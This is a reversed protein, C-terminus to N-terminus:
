ALMEEHAMMMPQQHQLEDIMAEKEKLQQDREKIEQEHTIKFAEMESKMRQMQTDLEFKQVNLQYDMEIKQRDIDMKERSLEIKQFELQNKEHEVQADMQAAELAVRAPDLPPEPPQQASQAEQAEQVKIHALQVALQNQQDPTLQAPDEPPPMGLKAYADVMYKFAEHQKKYAAANPLNPDQPNTQMWADIVALYADHDQWVAAAVAEGKTIAMITSVPDLPQPPQVKDAPPLLFQSIDDQSVGANEYYYRYVYYMNHANPNKLAQNLITEGLLFKHASNRTTPDAAPVMKIGSRIGFDVRSINFSGSSTVFSIPEDPTCEEFRDDFLGFEQTLSEFWGQMIVNPVRHLQEFMALTTGVPANPNMEAVKHTVIASPKRISDEIENGMMVLTPSPEKSPISQIVQSIPQGGCHLPIYEGPKPTITNNELRISADYMGGPFNNYEATSIIQRKISTAAQALRGAYNVFGYGEGDLSSLFSYNVFYEIRRKLPDNERWNRYLGLVKGSIKDISAVYPLSIKHPFGAPDGKVVLNTHCENIVYNGDELVSYVSQSGAIEEMQEQVVGPQDDRDQKIVRIDRYMGIAVRAQFDRESMKLIHTKRTAALHSSFDRNVVFQEVPIMVAVPRNEIPCTYVKKYVSGAVECWNLTRKGEKRFDKADNDFYNNYFHKKRLRRDQLEPSHEGVAIADVMDTKFLVCGLATMDVMTEFMTNSFVSSTGGPLDQGDGGEAPTPKNGLFAITAAVGEFYPKQSEIDNEILQNLTRGIEMLEHDSLILALNEKHHGQTPMIDNNMAPGSARTGDPFHVVATNGMVERYAGSPLDDQPPSPLQNM